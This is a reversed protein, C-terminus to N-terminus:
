IWMKDYIDTGSESKGRPNDTNLDNFEPREDLGDPLGYLNTDEINLYKDLLNEINNNRNDKLYDKLDNLSLSSEYSTDYDRGFDLSTPMKDEFDNKPLYKDLNGGIPSVSSLDDSPEIIPSSNIQDDVPFDIGNKILSIIGLRAKTKLHRKSLTNDDEIWSDDAKYKDKNRKRREKLFDSISKYEHMSHWGAGPGHKPKDSVGPVDYVDYNKYFPEEFRPQNLIAPDSKYKKKKPTPEETGQFYAKSKLM